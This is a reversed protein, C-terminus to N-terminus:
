VELGFKEMIGVVVDKHEPQRVLLQKVDEIIKAQIKNQNEIQVRLKQRRVNLRHRIEVMEKPDVLAEAQFGWIDCDRVGIKKMTASLKQQCSELKQTNDKFQREAQRAKMYEEYQYRLETVNKVDFKQHLYDLLNSTNIYKIKVKNSLLIARAKKKQANKMAVKNKRGELFIYSVCVAVLLIALLYPITMDAKFAYALAIFVGFLLVTLVSIIISIKKLYAQQAYLVKEEKRIRDKEEDLYRLDSQIKLFFGENEEMKRIEKPMDDEYTEIRHYQAPSLNGIKGRYKELEKNLAVIQRATNEMVAADKTEANGIIQIDTLYATVSEYETKAEEQSKRTEMMAECSSIIYERCDEAKEYHMQETKRESLFEEQDFEEKGSSTVAGSVSEKAPREEKSKKRKRFLGFLGM